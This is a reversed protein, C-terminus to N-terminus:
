NIHVLSPVLKMIILRCMCANITSLRKILGIRSAFCTCGVKVLVEATALYAPVNFLAQGLCAARAAMPVLLVTM